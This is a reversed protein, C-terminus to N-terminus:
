SSTTVSAGDEHARVLAAVFRDAATAFAGDNMVRVVNDGAPMAARARDIREQVAERGERGRAVLREALVADPADVLVVRVPALRRRAEDIVGRSVNVVVSRGAALDDEITAPIGYDTGHAHWALAFDGRERAAQFAEPSAPVHAEGGADAPRTIVRAPFVFRGDDALRGAAAKLLSDKGAGSPGVVLILTGRPTDPM